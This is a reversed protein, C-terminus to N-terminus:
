KQIQKLAHDRAAALETLSKPDLPFLRDGKGLTGGTSLVPALLKAALEWRGLELALMGGVVHKGFHTHHNWTGCMLPDESVGEMDAVRNLVLQLAADLDDLWLCWPLIHSQALILAQAICQELGEGTPGILWTQPPSKKDRVPKYITKRIHCQEPMPERQGKHWRLPNGPDRLPIFNFYRGVHLSPSHASTLASRIFQIQVVDVWRENRRWATGNSFRGFGEAQLLPQLGEVLGAVVEKRMQHLEPKTLAAIEPEAPAGAFLSQLRDLLTNM